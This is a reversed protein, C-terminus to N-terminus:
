WTISEKKIMGVVSEDERFIIIRFDENAEYWKELQEFDSGSLLMMTEGTSFMYKFKVWAETGNKSSLVKLTNSLNGVEEIFEESRIFERDSDLHDMIVTTYNNILEEATVVLVNKMMYPNYPNETSLELQKETVNGSTFSTVLKNFSVEM